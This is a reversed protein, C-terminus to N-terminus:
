CILKHFTFHCYVNYGNYILSFHSVTMFVRKINTFYVPEFVCALSVYSVVYDQCQGRYKQELIKTRLGLRLTQM